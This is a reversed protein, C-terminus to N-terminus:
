NEISLGYSDVDSNEEETKKKKEKAKKVADVYKSIEEEAVLVQNKSFKSLESDYQLIDAETIMKDTTIDKENCFVFRNFRKSLNHQELTEKNLCIYQIDLPDGGHANVTGKLPKKFKIDRKLSATLENKGVAVLLANVPCVVSKYFQTQYDIKECVEDDFDEPPYCFMDESNIYYSKVKDGQRIKVYKTNGTDTLVNNYRICGQVEGGSGKMLIYDGFVEKVESKQVGGKKTTITHYDGTVKHVAYSKGTSEDKVIDYESLKATYSNITRVYKNFCIDDVDSRCFIKYEDRLAPIIDKELVINYNKDMIIDIMRMIIERAKKPYSPKTCPLGSAHTENDLWYDEYITRYAYNKKATWIAQSCVKEMKFKMRNDVKYYEAYKNFADDLYKEFRNNLVDIVFQASEKMSKFHLGSVSEILAGFNVYNSDTDVYVVEDVDIKKVKSTDIGLKKHLETDLHWVNKFYNNVADISFHILNRGQATVTSAVDRNAFYFYPSGFAGYAQNIMVKVGLQKAKLTRVDRTLEHIRQSNDEQCM